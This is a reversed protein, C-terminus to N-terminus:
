FSVIIGIDKNVTRGLLYQNFLINFQIGRSDMITILCRYNFYQTFNKLTFIVIKYNSVHKILSQDCGFVFLIKQCRIQAFFTELKLPNRQPRLCVMSQAGFNRDLQKNLLSFFFRFSFHSKKGKIIEERRKMRFLPNNFCGFVVRFILFSDGRVKSTAVSCFSDRERQNDLKGGGRGGKIAPQCQM